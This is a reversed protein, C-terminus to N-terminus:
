FSVSVTEPQRQILDLLAELEPSSLETLSVTTAPPASTSVFESPPPVTNTTVALPKAGQWLVVLGGLVAALTTAAVAAAAAYQNKRSTTAPQQGGNAPSAPYVAALHASDDRLQEALAALEDPLNIEGNATLPAEDAPILNPDFPM